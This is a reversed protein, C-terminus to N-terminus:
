THDSRLLFDIWGYKNYYKTTLAAMLSNACRACFSLHNKGNLTLEKLLKKLQNRRSDSLCSFIASKITKYKDTTPEQRVVDALQEIIDPELARIVNLNKVQDDEINTTNFEAEVM